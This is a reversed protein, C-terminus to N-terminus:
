QQCPLCIVFLESAPDGLRLAYFTRQVRVSCFDDKSFNHRTRQDRHRETGLLFFLTSSSTLFFFSHKLFLDFLPSHYIKERQILTVKRSLRVALVFGWNAVPGWFHTSKPGHDSKIWKLLSGGSTSAAKVVKTTRSM